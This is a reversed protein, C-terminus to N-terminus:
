GTTRPSRPRAGLARAPACRRRRPRAPLSRVHAGTGAHACLHDLAERMTGFRDTGANFIAPAPSTARRAICLRRRSRRRPRVPLPQLRRRARVPRRRRRDLRVPHRLHRPPRPRPDDAAARHHRRARRGRRSAPGSPPSSPTRRLGRGPQPVRRRCCRTTTRSASCRARRPTCSRASAPRTRPTSCCWPATSTSAACCRRTAPSRCRPSTTSCSTSATSPAACPPRTASTASSWRSRRGAALRDADIDLVRVTHGAVLLRECSCRGFYGSGGTVLSVTVADLGEALCWRISRRM